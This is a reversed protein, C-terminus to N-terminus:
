VIKETVAIKSLIHTDATTQRNAGERNINASTKSQTYDVHKM